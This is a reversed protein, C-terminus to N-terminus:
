RDNDALYKEPAGFGSGIRLKMVSDKIIEPQKDKTYCGLTFKTISWSHLSHLTHWEM